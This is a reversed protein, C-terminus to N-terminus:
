KPLHAETEEHERSTAEETERQSERYDREKSTERFDRERPPERYDRERPPERYDRNQPYQYKEKHRFHDLSFGGAGDCLVYLLGGFIALNKLFNTQQAVQDAAGSNWFDHFIATTPILYLLLILAGFRAKYGFILFLGGVIEVVAACILLLPVSPLGKSAMAQATQDFYVLKSIGAVLFVAALCLRAILVLFSRLFKM